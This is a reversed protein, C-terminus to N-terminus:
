WLSGIIRAIGAALAPGRTDHPRAKQM